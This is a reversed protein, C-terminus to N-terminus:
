EGMDKRANWPLGLDHKTCLLKPFLGSLGTEERGQDGLFLLKHLKSNVFAVRVASHYNRKLEQGVVNFPALEKWCTKM